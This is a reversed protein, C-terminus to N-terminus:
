GSVEHGNCRDELLCVPRKRNRTTQVKREDREQEVSPNLSLSSPSYERLANLVSALTPSEIRM